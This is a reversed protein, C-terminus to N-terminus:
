KTFLYFPSDYLLTRMRQGPLKLEGGSSREHGVFLKLLMPSYVLETSLSCEGDSSQLCGVYSKKMSPSPHVGVMINEDSCRMLFLLSLCVRTISRNHEIRIVQSQFSHIQCSHYCLNHPGAPFINGKGSSPVFCSGLGERLVFLDQKMLRERCIKALNRQMLM